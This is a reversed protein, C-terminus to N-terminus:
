KKGLYAAKGRPFTRRKLVEDKLFELYVFAYPRNERKSMEIFVPEMKDWFPMLLASMQMGLLEIDIRGTTVLVGLGHFFAIMSRIDKNKEPHTEQGYKEEYDDYDEWKYTYVVRLYRDWWDPDDMAKKVEMFLQTRRTENQNRIQLAYYTLAIILGIGTLVISLTQYDVM